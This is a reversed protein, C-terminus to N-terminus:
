PGHDAAVPRLLVFSAPHRTRAALSWAAEGTGFFIDGRAPGVIASGTDQAIMLRRFRGAVDGLDASVFVPLHFTHLHRDVALSRGPTLPVGAAAIPGLEPDPVPAERFFITSRNRGLVAPVESPNDILWRRLVDATAAAPAMVGREVLVRAIPFYPHGSKAAFTVRLEGGEAVRIRASGQVHIFFAEVHDRVFAIELGRGDLAGAMVAARDPHEVLSGDPLRRAWTLAPDLGRRDDGETIEVLDDPRAYLPVPFDTSRSRSGEVEPEYYGTVFGGGTAPVVRFPRFAAEFFLRAETRDPDSTVALAAEAAPRLAATSVGLPKVSPPAARIRLASRRFAAFAAVHDDGTWGDLADFSVPELRTAAAPSSQEVSM